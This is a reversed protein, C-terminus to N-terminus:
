CPVLEGEDHQDSDPYGEQVRSVSSDDDALISSQEQLSVMEGEKLVMSSSCSPCSYIRHVQGHVAEVDDIVDPHELYFVIAREAIASMPELDVASRVKLQRHLEPPLYLTVKHKDQM